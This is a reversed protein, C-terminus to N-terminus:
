TPPRTDVDVRILIGGGGGINPKLRNPATTECIKNQSGGDALPKSNKILFFVQSFAVYFAFLRFGLVSSDQSLYIGLSISVSIFICVRLPLPLTCEHYRMGYATTM